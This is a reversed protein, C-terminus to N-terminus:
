GILDQTFIRELFDSCVDSLGPTEVFHYYLVNADIFCDTGSPLDLPM